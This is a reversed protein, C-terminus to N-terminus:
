FNNKRFFGILHRHLSAKVELNPYRLTYNRSLPEYSDITLYGMQFLLATLPLNEIEFTQLLDETGRLM